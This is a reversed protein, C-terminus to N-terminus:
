LGNEDDEKTLAGMQVFVEIPVIVSRDKWLQALASAVKSYYKDRRYNSRTTKM